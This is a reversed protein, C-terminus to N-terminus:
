IYDYLYEFEAILDPSNVFEKKILEKKNISLIDYAKKRGVIICGTLIGMVYVIDDCIELYKSIYEVNIECKEIVGLIVEYRHHVVMTSIVDFMYKLEIINSIYFLYSCTAIESLFINKDEECYAIYTKYIDKGIGLLEAFLSFAKIVKENIRGYTLFGFISDVIFKDTYTCNEIVVKNILYFRETDLYKTVISNLGINYESFDFINPLSEPTLKNESSIIHCYYMFGFKIKGTYSVITELIDNEGSNIFSLITDTHPVFGFYKVVKEIDDKIINTTSLINNDYAVNLKKLYILNEVSWNKMNNYVLSCCSEIINKIIKVDKIKHENIIDLITDINKYKVIKYDSYVYGNSCM